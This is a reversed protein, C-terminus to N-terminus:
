RTGTLLLTLLGQQLGGFHLLLLMVTLLVVAHVVQVWLQWLRLERLHRLRLDNRPHRRGPAPGPGAGLRVNARVQSVKGQRVRAEQSTWTARPAGSGQVVYWGRRHQLLLVGLVRGTQQLLSSEGPQGVEDGLALDVVLRLLGELGVQGDGQLDRYGKEYGAETHDSSSEYEIQNLHSNWRMWLENM